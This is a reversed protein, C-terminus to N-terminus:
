ESADAPVISEGYLRLEEVLFQQREDLTQTAAISDLKAFYNALRSQRDGSLLKKARFEDWAAREDTSLAAPFNRAKYLSLLQQFREDHFRAAYADDLQEPSTSRITELLDKDYKDYFGEYLRSDVSSNDLSGSSSDKQARQEDLKAAVALIKKAFDTKHQELVALNNTVEGLSLSLRELSAVDQVVGPAVAPCRNYKLTKVPLRLADPDKSYHWAAALAAIDMDLFPTPDVRLDYVIASDQQEHKALLVAITTHLYASSFHSSTYTFPRGSEVVSKVKDKKRISLLYDFLKPQVNHILKAIAITAFVDSLADHAKYHDLKNLKTLLELRNTPKGEATFPWNIGEPRLARTARVLDLVDWRSCGSAWQWAYADYFNRYHLFRMFEDDFRISNYGLFTTDPQVVDSYFFRMFEAESVGDALVQQPTIATLLIAEPEPLVDPSLKILVNVPEGIPEFNTDTRQGAFQMVRADRPSLGSTELDYFFFSASM